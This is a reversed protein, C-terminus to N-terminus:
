ITDESSNVHSYQETPHPTIISPESSLQLPGPYFKSPSLPTPPYYQYLHLPYQRRWLKRIPSDTTRTISSVSFRYFSNKGVNRWTQDRGEGDPHYYWKRLKFVRFLFLFRSLTSSILRPYVFNKIDLPFVLRSIGIWCLCAVWILLATFMFDPTHQSCVWSFSHADISCRSPPQWPPM